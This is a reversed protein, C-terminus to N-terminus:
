IMVAKGTSTAKIAARVRKIEGDLWERQSDPWSLKRRIAELHQVRGLLTQKVVQRGGVKVGRTSVKKTPM